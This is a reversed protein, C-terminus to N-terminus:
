RSSSPLSRQLLSKPVSCYAAMAPSFPTRTAARDCGPSEAQLRPVSREAVPVSLTQGQAEFTPVSLAIVAALSAVLTAGAGRRFQFRRTM